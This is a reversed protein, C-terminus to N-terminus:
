REDLDDRGYKKRYLMLVRELEEKNDLKTVCEKNNWLVVKRICTDLEDKENAFFLYKNDGDELTDVILYDQGNELTMVNVKM